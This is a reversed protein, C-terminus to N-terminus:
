HQNWRSFAGTGHQWTPLVTRFIKRQPETCALNTTTETKNKAPVPVSRLAGPLWDAMVSYPDMMSRMLGFAVMISVVEMVMLMGPTLTLVFVAATYM